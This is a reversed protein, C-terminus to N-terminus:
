APRTYQDRTLRVGSDAALDGTGQVPEIGVRGPSTTTGTPADHKMVVLNVPVNLSLRAGEFDTDGEAAQDLTVHDHPM